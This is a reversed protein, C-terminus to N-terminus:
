RPPCSGRLELDDAVIRQRSILSQPAAEAEGAPDTLAGDLSVRSPVAGTETDFDIRGSAAGFDTPTAGAVPNGDATCPFASMDEVTWRQPLSLDALDFPSPDGDVTVLGLDTCIGSAADRQFIIVRDYGGIAVCGEISIAPNPATPSSGADVPPTFVPPETAAPESAPPAEAGPPESSGPAPM